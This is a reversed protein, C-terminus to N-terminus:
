ASVQLFDAMLEADTVDSRSPRVEFFDGYVAPQSLKLLRAYYAVFSNNLKYSDAATTTEISTYWRMREWVMRAGFHSRVARAQASFKAFLQYVQPNAAHFAKFQKYTNM